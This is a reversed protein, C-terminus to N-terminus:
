YVDGNDKIKQDEYKAVQRRYFELKAGELAGIIDNATQYSMGKRNQYNILLSTIKFNLEGANEADHGFAQNDYIEERRDETIYPMKILEEPM